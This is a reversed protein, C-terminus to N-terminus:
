CEFDEPDLFNRKKFQMSDVLVTLLGSELYGPFSNEFAEPILRVNRLMIEFTIPAFEAVKQSLSRAMLRGLAIKEATTIKPAQLEFIRRVRESGEVFSNFSSKTRLRFEGPISGGMGRSEIEFMIGDLIYDERMEAIPIRKKPGVGAMAVAMKRVQELEDQTLEGMMEIIKTLFIRNSM